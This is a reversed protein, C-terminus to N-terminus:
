AAVRTESNHGVPSPIATAFTSQTTADGQRAFIAPAAKQVTFGAIAQRMFLHRQVLAADVGGSSHSSEDSHTIEGSRFLSIADSLDQGRNAWWNQTPASAEFVVESQADVEGLARVSALVPEFAPTTLRDSGPDFAVESRLSGSIFNGESNTSELLDDSTSGFESQARNDVGLAINSMTRTSGDAMTVISTALAESVSLTKRDVNESNAELSISVVGADELSRLEKENSFGDSNTDTWVRLHGFVADAADITGNDNTDFAKLGQLSTRAYPVWSQFTASTAVDIENSGLPDIVLLAASTGVWGVRYPKGILDVDQFVHSDAVDIIEAEAGDFSISLVQLRQTTYRGGRNAYLTQVGSSQMWSTDGVQGSAIARKREANKVPDLYEGWIPLLSSDIGAEANYGIVPGVGPHDAGGLLHGLSGGTLDAAATMFQSHWEGADYAQQGLTVDYAMGYTGDMRTFFATASAYSDSTMVQEAGTLSRTLGISALGTQELTRIEDETSVADMNRDVWIRLRQWGDDANSIIGDSNTDWGALGELDTKAGERDGVFSIDSVQGFQGDSNRDTVLIGNTPGVWGLRTLVGSDAETVIKSVAVPTLELGDDDLDLVIPAVGLTIVTNNTGVVNVSSTNGKYITSNSANVTVGTGRVTIASGSGTVNVTNGNGTVSLSAGATQLYVTGSSLNVANSSGAGTFRIIDGTGATVSNGTGTINETLSNAVTIFTNDATFTSSTTLNLKFGLNLKALQLSGGGAQIFYANNLTYAGNVISGAAGNVIRINDAVQYADFTPNDMDAVGVYLDNGVIKYLLDSAGVSPGFLLSKQGGTGNITYHGDGREYTIQDDGASANITIGGIGAKGAIVINDGTSAAGGTVNIVSAGGGTLILNTGGAGGNVTSPAVYTIGGGQILHQQGTQSTGTTTQTQGYVTYVGDLDLTSAGNMSVSGVNLGSAGNGSQFIVKDDTGRIGWTWKCVYTSSPGQYGPGPNAPVAGVSVDVRLSMWINDYTVAAGFNVWDRSYNYTTATTTGAGYNLEVTDYGGGTFANIGGTPIFYAGNNTATRTTVGNVTTTTFAPLGTLTTGYPSGLVKTFNLFSDGSKGAVQATGATLNVTVSAPALSYDLTNSGNAAGKYTNGGGSYSFWDDGGSGGDLTSGVLGKLSDNFGSGTINQVNIFNDFNSSGGYSIGTTGDPNSFGLSVYVGAGSNAFSVTTIGGGGVFTDNGAGGQLIGGAAGSKLYNNGAASGTLNQINSLTYSTGTPSSWNSLDASIGFRYREYSLTNSGSGGNLTGSGLALGSMVIIDNGSGGSITNQGGGLIITDDGIGGTISTTGSGAALYSGANGGYITTNGSGGIIVDRGAGGQLIDTGAGGQIWTDNMGATINNGGNGGVFINYGARGANNLSAGGASGGAFEITNGSTLTGLSANTYAMVQAFNNITVSSGDASSQALISFLHLGSAAPNYITLNGSSYSLKIDEFHASATRTELGFSKLFGILGGYFDSAAWKSLNLESAAQLTIIWPNAISQNSVAAAINKITQMNANFTTFEGSTLANVGHMQYKDVLAKNNTYFDKEAQTLAANAYAGTIYSNILTRNAAYKRYDKATQINGALVSLETAAGNLIARKAFIDGGIIKTQPMAWLVGKTVAQDASVVNYQTGGYTVYLQTGTYGYTQTPSTGNAVFYPSIGGGTVQEIVGNLIQAANKAMDIVINTSGGNASTVTGLKYQAYPLNLVTSAAASPIKPKKKGFLNGILAGLVFGVFAGVGPAVINLALWSNGFLSIGLTTAAAGTGVSLSATTLAWTGVASGLSSLVGAAQTQPTVVLRGLTAGLFSSIASVALSGAGAHTGAAADASDFIHGPTFGSWANTLGGTLVNSAIKSSVSGGVTGLLQASFGTLGLSQGLEMFLMNGAMGASGTVIQTGVQGLYNSFATASATPLANAADTSGVLAAALDKGLVGLLSGYVIGQVQNGHSLFKGLSSGIIGGIDAAADAVNVNFGVAKGFRSAGPTVSVTTAGTLSGDTQVFYRTGQTSGPASVTLVGPNGGTGPTFDVRTLVRGGITQLPISQGTKTTLSLISGDNGSQTIKIVNGSGFDYQRIINNSGDVTKTFAPKGGTYTIEVGDTIVSENNLREVFVTNLDSSRGGMSYGQNNALGVRDAYVVIVQGDSYDAVGNSYSGIVAPAENSSLLLDSVIEDLGSNMSWQFLSIVASLGAAPLAIEAHGTVEATVQILSVTANMGALVADVILKPEVSQGNSLANAILTMDNQLTILNVIITGIGAAKLFPGLPGELLPTLTAILAGTAAVAVIISAGLIQQRAPTPDNQYDRWAEAVAGWCAVCSNTNAIIASLNPPTSMQAEDKYLVAQSAVM